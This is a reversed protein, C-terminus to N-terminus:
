SKKSFPQPVAMLVLPFPESPAEFLRILLSHLHQNYEDLKEYLCLAGLFKGLFTENGTELCQLYDSSTNVFLNLQHESLESFRQQWSPTLLFGLFLQYDPAM